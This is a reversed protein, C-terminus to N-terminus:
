GVAQRAAGLHRALDAAVLAHGRANLHLGDRAFIDTDNAGPGERLPAHWGGAEASAARTIEALQALRASMPAVFRPDAYPSNAIDLLDMTLVDAGTDRLPVLLALLDERLVAPDFDPRRLDNGGAAVIALDPELALARELQTARVESATLGRRGLNVLSTGPGAVALAATLRDAWSLDDYGPAPERVGEAISDGIVVVRTWPVPPRLAEALERGGTM